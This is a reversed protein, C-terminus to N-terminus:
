RTGLKRAAKEFSPSSMKKVDNSLKEMAREDLRNLRRAFNGSAIDGLIRRMSTKVSRNIIKPGAAVSGYRAAVSIRELMGQIGHRKILAIILDLQYAVELYAHEPRLGREVLLDYGTRILQSLSGCLVAQEGFLDGISEDAFTTKMLRTRDIRMAGALAFLTRMSHGTPNQAIAYFASISRDGLYRERVASGPAHPALMIVDCNRPPKVFGFHVSTGHLFVITSGGRLNPAIQKDFVTGHCHDPFAMIIIEAKAVSASIGTIDSWGDRKAQKRSKSRARLGITVIFGSDRLNLAWARGQSGYGIVVARKKGKDNSRM